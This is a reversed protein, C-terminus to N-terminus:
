RVMDKRPELGPWNTGSFSIFDGDHMRKFYVLHPIDRSYFLGGLKPQTAENAVWCRDTLRQVVEFYKIDPNWDPSAELTHNALDGFVWDSPFDLVAEALMINKKTEQDHASKITILEEGYDKELNWDKRELNFRLKEVAREGEKACKEEKFHLPMPSTLCPPHSAHPIHPMPSTLCPPHSADPSCGILTQCKAEDAKKCSNRASRRLFANGPPLNPIIPMAHFRVPHLLTRKPMPFRALRNYRSIRM